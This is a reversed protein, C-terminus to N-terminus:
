KLCPAAMLGDGNEVQLGTQQAQIKQTTVAIRREVSNKTELGFFISLFIFDSFIKLIFLTFGLSFHFDLIDAVLLAAAFFYRKNNRM